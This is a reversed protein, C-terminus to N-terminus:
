SGLVEDARAQSLLGVSVLYNMGAITTPDNSYIEQAASALQQFDAVNQDTEAAIRFAAREGPTFRQLFEYATWKPADFEWGNWTWGVQCQVGDTIKVGNTPRDDSQVISTVVSSEDLVAWNM